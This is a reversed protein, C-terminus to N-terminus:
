RFPTMGGGMYSKTNMGYGGKKKKVEVEPRTLDAETQVTERFGLPNTNEYIGTAKDGMYTQNMAKANAAQGLIGMRRLNNDILGSVQSAASPLASEQPAMGLIGYYNPESGDTTASMLHGAIGPFIAGTAPNAYGKIVTEPNQQFLPNQMYTDKSRGERQYKMAQYYDQPNAYAERYLKNPDYKPPDGPGGGNRYNMTNSNKNVNGGNKYKAPESYMRGTKADIKPTYGAKIDGEVTLDHTRHYPNKLYTGKQPDRGLMHWEMKKNGFADSTPVYEPLLNAKWAGRLDYMEDDTQLNEPLSKRWEQFVVEESVNLKTKKPPDVPGGNGYMGYKAQSRKLAEDTPAGKSGPTRMKEGSGKKIRERKAHINAWLGNRGELYPNM